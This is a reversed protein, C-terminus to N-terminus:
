DETPFQTFDINYNFNALEHALYWELKTIEGQPKTAELCEQTTRYCSAAELSANARYCWDVLEKVSM